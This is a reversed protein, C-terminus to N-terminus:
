INQSDPFTLCDGRGELNSHYHSCLRSLQGCAHRDTKIVPFSLYVSLCGTHTHLCPSHTPLWRFALRTRYQTGQGSELTIFDIKNVQHDWNVGEIPIM